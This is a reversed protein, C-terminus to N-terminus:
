QQQRRAQPKVLLQLAKRQETPLTRELAYLARTLVDAQSTRLVGALARLLEYTDPPVRAAIQHQM